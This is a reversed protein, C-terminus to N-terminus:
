IFVEGLFVPGISGNVGIDLRSTWLYKTAIIMMKSTFTKKVLFFVPFSICQFIFTENDFFLLLLM